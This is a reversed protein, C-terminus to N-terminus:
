LDMTLLDMNRAKVVRLPNCLNCVRFGIMTACDCDCNCDRGRHIELSVAERYLDFPELESFRSDKGRKLSREM